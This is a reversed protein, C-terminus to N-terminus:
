PWRLDFPRCRNQELEFRATAAAAAAETLGGPGPVDSAHDVLRKGTGFGISGASSKTSQVQRGMSSAPNATVPGPSCAPSGAPPFSLM